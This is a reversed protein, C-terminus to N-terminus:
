CRRRRTAVLAARSAIVTTSDAIDRLEVVVWDVIDNAATGTPDFVAGDATEGGAFGEHTYNYPGATYPELTPILSAQVCITACRAPVQLM